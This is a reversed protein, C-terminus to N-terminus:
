RAGQLFASPIPKDALRLGGYARATPRPLRPLARLAATRDDDSSWSFSAVWDAPLLPEVAVPLGRGHHGGEQLIDDLGKGGEWLLGWAYTDPGIMPALQPWRAAAQHVQRKAPNLLDGADAALLLRRVGAKRLVSALAAATRSGGSLAGVSPLGVAGFGTREAAITAKREGETLLVTQSRRAAAEWGRSFHPLSRVDILSTAKTPKQDGSAPVPSGNPLHWSVRAGWARGDHGLRLELTFRQGKRVRWGFSDLVRRRTDREDLARTGSLYRGLDGAVRELAGATEAGPVYLSPDPDLGKSALFAATASKSTALGESELLLRALYVTFERGEDTTMGSRRKEPARRATGTQIPAASGNPYFLGSGMGGSLEHMGRAGPPPVPERWRWCWVWRGDAKDQAKCAEHTTEGLASCAPCEERLKRYSQPSSM